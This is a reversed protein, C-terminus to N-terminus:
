IDYALFEMYSYTGMYVQIYGMHVHEQMSMDIHVGVHEWTYGYVGM